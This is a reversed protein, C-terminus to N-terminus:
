ATADVARYREPSPNVRIPLYGPSLPWGTPYLSSGGMSISIKYISTFSINQPPFISFAFVSMCNVMRVTAHYYLWGGHNVGILNLLCTKFTLGREARVVSLTYHIYM